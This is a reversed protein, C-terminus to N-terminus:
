EAQIEDWPPDPVPLAPKAAFFRLSRLFFLGEASKRWPEMVPVPVKVASPM